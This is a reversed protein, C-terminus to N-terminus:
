RRKRRKNTAKIFFRMIFLLAILIAIIKLITIMVKGLVSGGLEVTIVKDEAEMDVQADSAQIESLKIETKGTTKPQLKITVIEGAQKTFSNRLLLMTGTKENYTPNGWDNKPTIDEVTVTEFADRDYELDFIIATIGAGTMNIEDLKISLIIENEEKTTEMNVSFDAAYVTVTMLFLTIIMLILLKTTKKM